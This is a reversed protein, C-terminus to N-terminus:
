VLGFTRGAHGPTVIRNNNISIKDVRNYKDTGNLQRLIVKGFEHFKPVNGAETCRILTNIKDSVAIDHERLKSVFADKSMQGGMYSKITDTM